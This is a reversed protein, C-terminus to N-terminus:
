DFDWQEAPIWEWTEENLYTNNKENYWLNVNRDIYVEFDELSTCALGVDIFMRLYQPVIYRDNAREYNAKLKPDDAFYNNTAEEPTSSFMVSMGLYRFVTFMTNIEENYFTSQNPLGGLTGISKYYEYYEQGFKTRKGITVTFRNATYYSKKSLEFTFTNIDYISGDPLTYIGHRTNEDTVEYIQNTDLFHEIMNYFDYYEFIEKTTMETFYKDDFEPQPIEPYSDVYIATPFYCLADYDIVDHVVKLPVVPKVTESVAPETEEGVTDTDGVTSVEGNDTKEGTEVIEGVTQVTGGGTAVGTNELIGGNYNVVFLAGGAIALAAAATIPYKWKWMQRAKVGEPIIVLEGEYEDGKVEVRAKPRYELMECILDDDVGKVAKFLKNERM